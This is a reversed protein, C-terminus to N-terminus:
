IKTVGISWFFDQSYLRVISDPATLPLQSVSHRTATVSESVSENTIEMQKGAGM